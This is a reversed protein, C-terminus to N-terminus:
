SMAAAPLFSRYRPQRPGRRDHGLEASAAARRSGLLEIRGVIIVAFKTLFFAILATASLYRLPSVGAFMM